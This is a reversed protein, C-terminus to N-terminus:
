CDIKSFDSLIQQYEESVQETDYTSIITEVKLAKLKAVCESAESLLDPAALQKQMSGVITVGLTLVSAVTTNIRWNGILPYNSVASQGTIFTALAGLCINILSYRREITKLKNKQTEAKKLSDNIQQRLVDYYHHSQNDLSTSVTNSNDSM